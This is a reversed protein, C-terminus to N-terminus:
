LAIEQVIHISIIKPSMFIKTRVNNQVLVSIVCAFRLYIREIYINGYIVQDQHYKKEAYIYRLYQAHRSSTLCDSSYKLDLIGESYKAM